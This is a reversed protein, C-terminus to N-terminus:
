TGTREADLAALMEDVSVFKRRPAGETAAARELADL